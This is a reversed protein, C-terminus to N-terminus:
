KKRRIGRGKFVNCTCRRPACRQDSPWSWRTPFFRGSWRGPGSWWIKCSCCGTGPSPDSPRASQPCWVCLPRFEPGTPDWHDRRNRRSHRCKAARNRWRCCWVHTTTTTTMLRKRTATRVLSKCKRKERRRALNVEPVRRIENPTGERTSNRTEHIENRM